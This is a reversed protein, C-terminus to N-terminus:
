KFRWVPASNEGSLVEYTLYKIIKKLEGKIVEPPYMYPEQSLSHIGAALDQALAVLRGEDAAKDGAADKPAYKGTGHPDTGSAATHKDLWGKLQDRIKSWRQIAGPAVLNGHEDKLGGAVKLFESIDQLFVKMQGPSRFLKARQEADASTDGLPYTKQLRDMLWIFQQKSRFVDGPLGGTPTWGGLGDDAKSAKIGRGAMPPAPSGPPVATKPTPIPTPTPASGGMGFRRKLWDLGWAESMKYLKYDSFENMLVAAVGIMSELSLNEMRPKHATPATIRYRKGGGFALSGHHSLLFDIVRQLLPAKEEQPVRSMISKIEEVAKKVKPMKLSLKPQEDDQMMPMTEDSSYTKSRLQPFASPSHLENLILPKVDVNLTSALVGAVEIMLNIDNQSAVHETFELFSRM